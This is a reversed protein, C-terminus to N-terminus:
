IQLDRVGEFDGGAGGHMGRPRRLVRMRDIKDNEFFLLWHRALQLFITSPPVQHSKADFTCAELHM